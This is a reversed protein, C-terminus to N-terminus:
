LACVETLFYPWKEDDHTEFPRAFHARELTNIICCLQLALDADKELPVYERFDGIQAATRIISANRLAEQPYM